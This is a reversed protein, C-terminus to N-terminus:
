KILFTICNGYSSKGRNDCLCLEGMDGKENVYVYLGANGTEYRPNPNSDRHKVFDDYPFQMVKKILYVNFVWPAM